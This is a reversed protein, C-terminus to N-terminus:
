IKIVGYEANGTYEEEGEEDVEVEEIYYETVDFLYMGGQNQFKYFETPNKALAAKAEGWSEFSAVLEPENCEADFTCGEYVKKVECQNKLLDYRKTM